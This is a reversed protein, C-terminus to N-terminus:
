VFLLATPNTIEKQKHTDRARERKFLCLVTVLLNVAIKLSSGPLVDTGARTQQSQCVSAGLLSHALSASSLHPHIPPSFPKPPM